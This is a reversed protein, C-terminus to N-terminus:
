VDDMSVWAGGTRASAYMGFIAKMTGLNDRGSSIPESGAVCAQAFHLIENVFSNDTPLPSSPELPIPPPIKTALGAVISIPGQERLTAFAPAHHKEIPSASPPAESFIIGDEGVISFHMREIPVSNSCRLQVHMGNRFALTAIASDEAGNSYAPHSAWIRASVRDVDGFFYRFLDVHHTSQTILVGGGARRADTYWAARERPVRTFDNPLFEEILGNWVSGLAGRAILSKVGQYSPVHRLNQAVMLTVGARDCASVIARCDAITCAMPKELLVHKGADAAALAITAHQDHPACVDIADIPANALMDRFDSYVLVGAGVDEAIAVAAARNVDCVATLTVVDPFSKFAPLHRRSIAGAGVLGIRVAQSLVM